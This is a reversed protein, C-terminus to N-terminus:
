LTIRAVIHVEISDNQLDYWSIDWFNCKNLNDCKYVDICVQEARVSNRERKNGVTKTM